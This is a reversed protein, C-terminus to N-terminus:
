GADSDPAAADLQEGADDIVAADSEAADVPEGADSEVFADEPVSADVAPLPSDDGCAAFFLVFVFVPLYKLSTM